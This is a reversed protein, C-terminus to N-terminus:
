FKADNTLLFEKLCVVDAQVRSCRRISVSCTISQSGSVRGSIKKKDETIRDRYRTGIETGDMYLMMKSLQVVHAPVRIM